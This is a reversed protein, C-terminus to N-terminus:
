VSPGVETKENAIETERGDIRSQQLYRNALDQMERAVSVTDSLVVKEFKLTQGSLPISLSVLTLLILLNKM